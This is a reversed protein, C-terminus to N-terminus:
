KNSGKLNSLHIAIRKVDSPDNFISNNDTGSSWALGPGESLNESAALQHGAIGMLCENDALTNCTPTSENWVMTRLGAKEFCRVTPVEDLDTVAVLFPEALQERRDDEFPLNVAARVADPGYGKFRFDPALILNELWTSTGRRVLLLFGILQRSSLLLSFASTDNSSEWRGCYDEFERFTSYALKLKKRMTIENMWGWVTRLNDEEVRELSLPGGELRQLDLMQLEMAAIQDDLSVAHSAAAGVLRMNPRDLFEAQKLRNQFYALQHRNKEIIKSLGGITSGWIQRDPDAGETNTLFREDPM